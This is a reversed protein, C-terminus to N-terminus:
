LQDCLSCPSALIPHKGINCGLKFTNEETNM